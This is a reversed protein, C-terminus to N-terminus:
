VYPLMSSQKVSGLVAQSQNLNLSLPERRRQKALDLNRVGSTGFYNNALNLEHLSSNSLFMAEFEPVCRTSILCNSLNLSKLGTNVELAKCLVVGGSSGIRNGSLNLNMLSKNEDLGPAFEIIHNPAFAANSLDLEILTSNEKLMAKLSSASRDDAENNALDLKRLTKNKELALFLRAMGTEMIDNSALALSELHCECPKKVYPDLLRSIISAGADGVSNGNLSLHRLRSAPNELVSRMIIACAQPTLNTENLMLSRWRVKSQRMLSSIAVAGEPGLPESSAVLAESDLCRKLKHSSQMKLSDCYSNYVKEAEKANESLKLSKQLAARKAVGQRIEAAQMAVSTRRMTSRRRMVKMRNLPESPKEDDSEPLPTFSAAERPTMFLLSGNKHEKGDGSLMQSIGIMGSSLKSHTKLFEIRRERPRVDQLGRGPGSSELWAASKRRAQFRVAGQAANSIIKLRNRANENQPKSLRELERLEKQMADQEKMYAVRRAVSGHSVSTNSYVLVRLYDSLHHDNVTDLLALLEEVQDTPLRKALKEVQECAARSSVCLSHLETQLRRFRHLALSKFGDEGEDIVVRGQLRRLCNRSDKITAVLEKFIGGVRAAPAKKVAPRGGGAVSRASQRSSRRSSGGLSSGGAGLGEGESTGPPEGMLSSTSRSRPGGEDASDEEDGEVLLGVEDGLAEAARSGEVLSSMVSM